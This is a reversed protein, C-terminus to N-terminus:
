LVTAYNSQNEVKGFSAPFVLVLEAPLFSRFNKAGKRRKQCITIHEAFENVM